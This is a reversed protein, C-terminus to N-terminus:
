VLLSQVRAYVRFLKIAVTQAVERSSVFAIQVSENLNEDKTRTAFSSM